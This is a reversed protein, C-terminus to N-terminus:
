SAQIPYAFDHCLYGGSVTYVLFHIVVAQLAGIILFRLWKVM